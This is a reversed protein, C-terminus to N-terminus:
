KKLWFFSRFQDRKEGPRKEKRGIVYWQEIKYCKVFADVVYKVHINDHKRENAYFYDHGSIVGGPRVKKTWEYLDDAVYRFDHNGDIYVFDLSNNPIDALAELSTKRLIVCDFPALIKKAFKYSAEVEKKFADEGWYGDYNRWPDIAYVKLGAQCLKRSFRGNRVGIEAGVKYGMDIFFQPLDTRVCDPIEAPNGKIKLGDIIKM